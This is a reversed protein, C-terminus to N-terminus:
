KTLYTFAMQDSRPLKLVRMSNADLALTTAVKFDTMISSMHYILFDQKKLLGYTQFVVIWTCIKKMYNKGPKNQIKGPFLVKELIKSVNQEGM